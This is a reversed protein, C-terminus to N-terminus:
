KWALMVLVVALCIDSALQAWSAIRTTRTTFNHAEPEIGRQPILDGERPLYIILIPVARLISFALVCLLISLELLSLSKDGRYMVLLLASFLVGKFVAYGSRSWKSLVLTRWPQPLIIGSASVKEMAFARIRCADTLVIRGYFALVFWLPVLGASVFYLLFVFEVARDAAIDIFSGLLTQSNLRRALIGDVGDLAFIIPMGLFAALLLFTPWHWMEVVLLLLVALCVRVISIVSPIAYRINSTPKQDNQGLPDLVM